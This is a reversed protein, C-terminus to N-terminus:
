VTIGGGNITCTEGGTLVNHALFGEVWMGYTYDFFHNVVRIEHATPDNPDMGVTVVYVFPDGTAADIWPGPTIGENTALNTYDAVYTSM